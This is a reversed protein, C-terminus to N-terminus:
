QPASRDLVHVEGTVTPRKEPPPLASIRNRAHGQRIRRSGKASSKKSFSSYIQESPLPPNGWIPHTTPQETAILQVGLAELEAIRDSVEQL